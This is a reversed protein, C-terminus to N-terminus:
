PSPQIAYVDLQDDPGPGFRDFECWQCMRKRLAPQPRRQNEGALMRLEIGGVEAERVERDFPKAAGALLVRVPM